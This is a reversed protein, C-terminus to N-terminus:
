LDIESRLKYSCASWCCRAADGVGWALYNLDTEKRFSSYSYSKTYHM